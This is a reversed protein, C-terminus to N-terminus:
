QLLDTLRLLNYLMQAVECRLIARTPALTKEGAGLVAYQACFAMTGTAYSAVSGGDPYVALVRTVQEASLDTDFGCLKAARALMTAAEQRTIVGEPNFKGHGVGNVIGYAAATDVYSAYWATEAVDTFTGRYEPALGLGCVVIKAFQARTMTADPSFKGKGMGDIIGYGALTEIAFQNKHGKVDDFTVGARVVTSPTLGQQPEAKTIVRVADSMDFVGPKALEARRVAILALLAQITATADATDTHKFSGDPLQYSLLADFVTKGNKVFRADDLKIGLACLALITQSCSESTAVGWTSFGGTMDQMAALCTVGLTVASEVAANERYNALAQLVIATVDADATQKGLGWGGDELQRGLLYDVYLERTAQTKADKNVPMAYDGADLAILAYAAATVGAAVTFDYDGLPKLLDVGDVNAPDEGIATLALITRSYETSRRTSLVGDAARLQERLAALFPVYYGKPAAFGGRASVIVAWGGTEDLVPSSTFLYQAGRLGAKGAESEAAAAPVALLSCLICVILLIPLRRKMM